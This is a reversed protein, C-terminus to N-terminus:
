CFWGRVSQMEVLGSIDTRDHVDALSDYRRYVYLCIGAILVDSKLICCPLLKLNRLWFMAQLDYSTRPLRLRYGHPMAMDDDILLRLVNAPDRRNTSPPWFSRAHRFAQICSVIRDRRSVVRDRRWEDHWVALSGSLGGIDRRPEIGDVGNCKSTIAFKSLVAMSQLAWFAKWCRREPPRQSSSQVM